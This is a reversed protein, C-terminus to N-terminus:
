CLSCLYWSHAPVNMYKYHTILSMKHANIDLHTDSDTFIEDEVEHKVFM